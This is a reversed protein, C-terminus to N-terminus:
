RKKARPAYEEDEDEGEDLYEDDSEATADRVPRKQQQTSYSGPAHGGNRINPNDFGSASVSNHIPTSGMGSVVKSSQVQQPQQQYLQQTSPMGNGSGEVSQATSSIYGSYGPQPTSAPQFLSNTSYMTQQQHTQPQSQVGGHLLQHSQSQYPQGFSSAQGYLGSQQQQMQTRQSSQPMAQSYQSQLQPDSRPQPLSQPLPQLLSHIGSSSYYANPQQPQSMMGYGMPQSGMPGSSSSFSQQSGLFPYQAYSPYPRSQQQQSPQSQMGTYQPRASQQPYQMYLNPQNQFAIGQGYAQQSQQSYIGYPQQQQQQQHSFKQHMPVGLNMTSGPILSSAPRKLEEELIPSPARLAAVNEEVKKAAKIAAARKTTPHEIPPDHQYHVPARGRVVVGKEMKSECVRYFEGTELKALIEVAVAFFQQSIPAAANSKKRTTNNTATRFQLRDFVVSSGPESFKPVPQTLPAKNRKNMHQVLEVPESKLVQAPPFTTTHATVHTLFCNIPMLKNNVEIHYPGTLISNIDTLPPAENSSSGSEPSESVTFISSIQFYNRRYCTWDDDALFFGRDVAPKLEINYLKSKDSNWIPCKQVSPEFVIAQGSEAYMDAASDVEASANDNLSQNSVLPQSSEVAKERSPSIQPHANSQDLPQPLGNSAAVASPRPLATPEPLRVHQQTGVSNELGFSFDFTQPKPISDNVGMYNGANAPFRLSSDFNSENVINQNFGYPQHNYGGFSPPQPLHKDSSDSAAASPQSVTPPHPLDSANQSLHALQYGSARSSIDAGSSFPQVSVGLSHNTNQFSPDPLGGKLGLLMHTGSHASTQSPPPDSATFQHDPNPTPDAPHASM